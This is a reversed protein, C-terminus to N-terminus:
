CAISELLEESDGNTLGLLMRDIEESPLNSLPDPFGPGLEQEGGLPANEHALGGSITAAGPELSSSLLDEALDAISHGDLLKVLSVPLALEAEVTTKLGLATLSEIGIGTFTQM